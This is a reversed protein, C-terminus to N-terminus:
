ARRWKTDEATDQIEINLSVLADRIADATAWDKHKRARQRIALLEDMVVNLDGEGSGGYRQTLEALHVLNVKKKAQQCITLVTGLSDLTDLAYTCLAPSPSNSLYRNVEKVFFFLTSIAEPTNFDDDMAQKFQENLHNIAQFFAHDPSSLCVPDLKPETDGAAARLDDRARIIRELGRRAQEVNKDSFDAPSRYHYSAFFFRLVEADWRSLADKITIFNGLSKSMKEGNVKLMGSHLWYRAFQKKEAAEAQTIENEHHPFILDRGGGHIDFPMGLFTSSMASCEIHWGPRGRGWPSQWAPEGPKAAKWLAFDLPSRKQEGLAIRAGAKMEDIKQGSLKGYDDATDVSFYVDGNAVYASDNDIINSIMAIIADIHESAKPYMDARNIGLCDMDELCRCTYISSYDLPDVGQDNAAKIIKDDIDTINQVYTVEYGRFELYRKIIDFALYTRAHGIHADSYVTMGCVYMKVKNDDIPAFDEKRRGLTNYVKLM